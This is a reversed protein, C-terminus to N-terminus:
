VNKEQLNTIRVIKRLLEEDSDTKNMERTIYYLKIQFETLEVNNVKAFHEAQVTCHEKMYIWIFLTWFLNTYSLFYGLMDDLLYDM